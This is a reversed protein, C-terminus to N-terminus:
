AAEYTFTVFFEDNTTWTMPVTANINNSAAYTGATGLAFGSIRTGEFIFVSPIYATAADVVLGPYLYNTTVKSTIPLSVSLSGTISSTSGFKVNIKGIITKGIQKYKAEVIGNGLTFNNYTPTYSTWAANSVVDGLDRAKTM